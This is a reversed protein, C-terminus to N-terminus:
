QLLKHFITVKLMELYGCEVALLIPSLGDDNPFTCYRALKLDCTGDTKRLLGTIFQAAAQSREHFPSSALQHLGLYYKNSSISGGDAELKFMGTVADEPVLAETIRRDGFMLMKMINPLSSIIDEKKVPLYPLHGMLAAVELSDCGQHKPEMNTILVLAEEFNQFEERNSHAYSLLDSMGNIFDEVSSVSGSLLVYACNSRPTNADTVTAHFSTVGHVM